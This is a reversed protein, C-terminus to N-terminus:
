NEEHNKGGKFQKLADDYGLAYGRDFGREFDRNTKEEFINSLNEIIDNFTQRIIMDSPSDMSCYLINRLQKLNQTLKKENERM